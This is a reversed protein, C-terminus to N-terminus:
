PNVSLNNKNLAGYIARLELPYDGVTTMLYTRTSVGIGVSVNSVVEALASAPVFGTGAAGAFLCEISLKPSGNPYQRIGIVVSSATPTWTATFGSKSLATPSNSTVMLTEPFNIQTSFAPVTAGTVSITLQDNAAYLLGPATSFYYNVPDFPITVTGSVGGSITLTGASVPPGPGVRSQTIHCPGDDRSATIIDLDTGFIGLRSTSNTDKDALVTLLGFRKNQADPSTADMPVFGDPRANNEGGCGSGVFFVLLSLCEFIRPRM